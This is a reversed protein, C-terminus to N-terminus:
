VLFFDRFDRRNNALSKQDNYADLFQLKHLMDKLNEVTDAPFENFLTLVHKCSLDLGNQPQQGLIFLLQQYEELSVFQATITDMRLRLEVDYASPELPPLSDKRLKCDSMSTLIPPYERMPGPGKHNESSM